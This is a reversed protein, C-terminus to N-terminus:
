RPGLRLRSGGRPELTTSPVPVPREDGARTLEFRRALRILVLAAEQRVFGEGICVHRGGGFPFYASKPRRRSAEGPRFREPDFREPDPFFRADRHSTWPCLFLRSRAPVEHGSPLRIDAPAMRVFLWSPPYIRLAESYVMQPYGLVDEPEQALRAQVEPHEALLALTWALGRASLEYSALFGRAEDFTRRDDLGADLLHGLLDGRAGDRRRERVLPLLIAELERQAQRYRRRAPSPLRDSAPLVSAFAQELYRARTSLLDALTGAVDDTVEGLLTRVRVRQALDVTAAAVDLEGVAAWADLWGDACAAVRDALAQLRRGDFAPQLSLRKSRHEAQSSAVLGEGFLRPEAPALLRPNKPLRPDTSVLVHRIDAPENLLYTRMRARRLRVVDGRRAARTLYALKDGRLGLAEVLAV